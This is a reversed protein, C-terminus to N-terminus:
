PKRSRAEYEAIHAAADYVRAEVNWAVPYDYSADAVERVVSLLESWDASSALTRAPFVFFHDVDSFTHGSLVVADANRKLTFSGCSKGDARRMWCGAFGVVPHERGPKSRHVVLRFGNRVEDAVVDANAWFNSFEEHM